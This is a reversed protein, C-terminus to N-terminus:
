AWGQKWKGRKGVLREVYSAQLFDVLTDEQEMVGLEILKQKQKELKSAGM